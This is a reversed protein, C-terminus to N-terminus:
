GQNIMFWQKIMKDISLRYFARNQSFAMFHGWDLLYENDYTKM